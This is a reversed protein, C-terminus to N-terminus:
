GAPTGGVVQWATERKVWRPGTQTSRKKLPEHTPFRLGGHRLALQRSATCEPCEVRSVGSDLFQQPAIEVVEAFLCKHAPVANVQGGVPDRTAARARWLLKDLRQLDILLNADIMQRQLKHSWAPRFPNLLNLAKRAFGHRM